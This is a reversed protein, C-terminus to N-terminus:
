GGVDAVLQVAAGADGLVGVGGGGALPGSQAWFQAQLGRRWPWAATALALWWWRSTVGGSGGPWVSARKGLDPGFPGLDPGLTGMRWPRVM